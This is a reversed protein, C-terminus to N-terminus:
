KKGKKKKGPTSQGDADVHLSPSVKSPTSAGSGPLSKAEAAPPAEDATQPTAKQPSAAPTAAPTSVASPAEAVTPPPPTPSAGNLNMTIQRPM